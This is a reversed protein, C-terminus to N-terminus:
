LTDPSFVDPRDALAPPTPAATPKSRPAPRPPPAARMPAQAEAAPRPGGAPVAVTRGSPVGSSAPQTAPHPLVTAMAPATASGTAARSPGSESYRATNRLLALALLALALGQVVIIGVLVPVRWRAPRPKASPALRVPWHGIPRRSRPRMSRPSMSPLQTSENAARPAGPTAVPEPPAKSLETVADPIAEPTTAPESPAISPEAVARQIADPAAIEEPSPAASVVHPAEVFAELQELKLEFPLRELEHFLEVEGLWTLAAGIEVLTDARAKRLEKKKEGAEPSWSLSASEYESHESRLRATLQAIEERGRLARQRRASTPLERDAFGPPPSSLSM